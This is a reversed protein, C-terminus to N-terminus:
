GGLAQRYVAITEQICREWSFHRAQRLGHEVAVMRWEDDTLLRELGANIADVDEPDVRLTADGGVEPLSSRNSTLVPIGSAMAELVPLGFGEYLSPYAFARAGAYLLPLDEQAVYGLRRLQGNRELPSLRRELEESMWGRVGALVLPYRRRLAPPLRGYAEALRGLNKRPELTSVGLLYGGPQLSYRSLPPILESLPYPRFEPDVGNHVTVIRHEPVGLLHIIEQRVFESVAILRTAQELTRPLYRELYAIRERPHFRPYHLHSLDHLTAVTPNACPPLIFNPVHLLHNPFREVQHRFWRSQIAGYLLAALPKCPLWRRSRDLLRNTSLMQEQDNVWRYASFYRIDAIDARVRLERALRLAYHGIGTLPPRIIDVSLIVNIGM